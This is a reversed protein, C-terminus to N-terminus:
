VSAPPTSTQSAQNYKASSRKIANEHSQSSNVKSDPHHSYIPIVDSKYWVVLIASDNHHPPRIDCPLEATGGLVARASLPPGQRKRMSNVRPFHSPSLPACFVGTVLQDVICLGIRVQLPLKFCTSSESSDAGRRDSKMREKVGNTHEQFSVRTQEDISAVDITSTVPSPHPYSFRSSVISLREHKPCRVSPYVRECLCLTPPVNISKEQPKTYSPLFKNVKQLRECLIM